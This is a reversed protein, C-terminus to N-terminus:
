VHQWPVDGAVIQQLAIVAAHAHVDLLFFHPCGDRFVFLLAKFTLDDTVPFTTDKNDASVIRGGTIPALM